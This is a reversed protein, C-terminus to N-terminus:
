SLTKELFEVLGTSDMLDLTLVLFELVTRAASSNLANHETAVIVNFDGRTVSVILISDNHLLEDLLYSAILLQVGFGLLGKLYHDNM